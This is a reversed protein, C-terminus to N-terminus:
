DTAPAAPFYKALPVGVAGTMDTSLDRLVVRMETADPLIVVDQVITFGEEPPREYTSPLLTLQYPQDVTYIIRKQDNLEIFLLEVVGTFRGDQQKLNLQHPDMTVAANLTRTGIANTSARNVHVTVGLRSSEILNTAAQSTIAQRMEPTTRTGTVAFYGQRARVHAGPRSVKVKIAHFRGDWNGAEPYYGLEYTIRADNIATRIAGTIDNTNYFARGGTESALTNMALFDFFGLRGTTLGRADVPYVVLTSNDLQQAAAEIDKAFLFGEGAANVGGIMYSPNVPFSGSIWILNKRGPLSGVHYAIQMLAGLTRRVRDRLLFDAENQRADNSLFASLSNSTSTGVEGMGGNTLGTDTTSADQPKSVNLDPSLHGKYKKLAAILSTADSTFDHLVHLENGLTYLAVRDRPQIHEFFKIVQQRAYTQDIFATNLGDLLVVTVNPPVDGNGLVRDTYTDPPPATPPELPQNTTVSFVQINQPKKDDLVAFDGKTLGTIPNGHKDTVIASVHVLRTTVRLPQAKQAGQQKQPTPVGPRGSPTTGPNATTLFIAPSLATWLLTARLRTDKM